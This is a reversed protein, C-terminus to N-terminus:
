PGIYKAVIMQARREDDTGRAIVRGDAHVELVIGPEATLAGGVRSADIANFVGHGRLHTLVRALDPAPAGRPPLVQVAQRGCLVTTRTGAGAQTFPREGRVCCPCQPDQHAASLITEQGDLAHFARLRRDVSSALGALWKLCDGTATAAARVVAPAFVGATDCSALAGPAPLEPFVCRFCAGGPVCALARGEWGVAAAHFYPIVKDVCWENLLHRTEITDVGDVIAHAGRAYSAISEGDLSDDYAEIRITSNVARLRQQAASAKARGRRADDETYLTQRGLNSWEVVDRDVLIIHGVGARALLDAAVCGLAGVGAVLVCSGRWRDIADAPLGALLRVREARLHSEDM